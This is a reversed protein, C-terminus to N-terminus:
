VAQLERAAKYTSSIGTLVLVFHKITHDVFGLKDWTRQESILRNFNIICHIYRVKKEKGQGLTTSKERRFDCKYTNAQTKDTWLHPKKQSLKLCIILCFIIM